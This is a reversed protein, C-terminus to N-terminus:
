KKGVIWSQFSRYFNQAVNSCHRFRPTGLSDILLANGYVHIKLKGTAFQQHLQKGGTLKGEIGTKRRQVHSETTM